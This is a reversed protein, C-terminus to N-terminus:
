YHKDKARRGRKHMLNRMTIKINTQKKLGKNSSVVVNEENHSLTEYNHSSTRGKTGTRSRMTSGCAETCSGSEDLHSKFHEKFSFKTPRTDRFQSAFLATLLLLEDRCEGYRPTQSYPSMLLWRLINILSRPMVPPPQRATLAIRQCVAFWPLACLSAPLCLVLRRTSMWILALILRHEAAMLGLQLGSRAAQDRLVHEKIKMGSCGSRDLSDPSTESSTRLHGWFTEPHRRIYRSPLTQFDVSSIEVKSTSDFTFNPADSSVLFTQSLLQVNFEENVKVSEFRSTKLEFFYESM